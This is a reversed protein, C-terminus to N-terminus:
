VTSLQRNRGEMESLNISLNEKYILFMLRKDRVYIVFIEGLKENIKRLAIKLHLTQM